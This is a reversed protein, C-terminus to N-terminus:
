IELLSNFFRYIYEYLNIFILKYIYTYASILDFSTFGVTIKKVRGIEILIEFADVKLETTLVNKNDYNLVFRM